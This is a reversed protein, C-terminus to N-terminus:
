AITPGWGAVHHGILGATGGTASGIDAPGAVAEIDGDLLAGQTPRQLGRKRLLEGLAEGSADRVDFQGFSSGTALLLLPVRPRRPGRLGGRRSPANAPRADLCEIGAFAAGDLQGAGDSDLLQRLQQADVRRVDDALEDLTADKGGDVLQDVAVGRRQDRALEAVLDGLGLGGTPAADVALTVALDGLRGLFHQELLVRGAVELRTRGDHGDHPVDVV